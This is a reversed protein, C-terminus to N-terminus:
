GYYIKLFRKLLERGAINSKEPHFQMGYINGKKVMSPFEIGYYSKSIVNEQDTPCVYYSHTFYFRSLQESAVSFEDVMVVKNWGVHPVPLSFNNKMSRPFKKVTGPILSLGQEKGEESSDFLIHMGICIGLIPKGSKIYQLLFDEAEGRVSQMAGDFSGVGPLVLLDIPTQLNIAKKDISFPNCGISSFMNVVSTPNGFGVSLIAVNIM